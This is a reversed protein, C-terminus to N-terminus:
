SGKKYSTTTTEGELFGTSNLISIYSLPCCTTLVPRCDWPKPLSLHSSVSSSTSAANSGAEFVLSTDFTYSLPRKRLSTDVLVGPSPPLLPAESPVLPHSSEWLIHTRNRTSM